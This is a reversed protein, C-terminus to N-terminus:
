EQAEVLRGELVPLVAGAVEVRVPVGESSEVTVRARGPRGLESGQHVVLDLRGGPGPDAAAVCAGLAGAASGTFPDELVGAQPAFHRVRLSLAADGPDGAPTYLSIGLWGDAHALAALAQPDPRARELAEVDAVRLMLQPLGTSWVQGPEGATRVGGCARALAEPDVRAGAAPRAQEMAAGEDSARVALRGVGTEVVGREGMLGERRLVWAAGVVPHGAMPLERAPTFIRLRAAARPDQPRLVFVTESLRLEFALAQMREQGVGDADLVVALPNGTWPAVAFVDV